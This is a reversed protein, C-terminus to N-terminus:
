SVSKVVSGQITMAGSSADIPQARDYVADSMAPNGRAM